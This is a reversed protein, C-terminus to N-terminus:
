ISNCIASIIQDYNVDRLGEGIESEYYIVNDWNNRIENWGYLKPTFLILRKSNFDMFSGESDKDGWWRTLENFDAAMTKPYYPSSKGFGLPHAADDSWLVIIQRRKTCEKSWNSRIAFALAELGDEPDDGGGFVKIANVAREFERTEAPLVYFRTMRMADKEDALYDRFIILKIRLAGICKNKSTMKAVLDKYFNITHAKITEILGTMSNTADIVFVIDVAYTMKYNSGVKIAWGKKIFYHM